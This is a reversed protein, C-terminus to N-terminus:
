APHAGPANGSRLLGWESHIQPQFLSTRWHVALYVIAASNIRPLTIVDAVHVDHPVHTFKVLCVPIKKSPEAERRAIHALRAATHGGHLLIDGVLTLHKGSVEDLDFASQKFDAILGHAEHMLHAVNFGALSRCDTLHRGDVDIARCPFGDRPRWLDTPQR